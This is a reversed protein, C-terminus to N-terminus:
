LGVLSLLSQDLQSSRIAHMDDILWYGAKNTFEKKQGNDFKIAWHGEAMAMGFPYNKQDHILDVNVTCSRGLWKEFQTPDLESKKNGNILNWKLGNKIIKFKHDNLEVSMETPHASCWFWKHADFAFAGEEFIPAL